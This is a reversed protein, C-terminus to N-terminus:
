HVIVDTRYNSTTVQYLLIMLVVLVSTDTQNGISTRDYTYM